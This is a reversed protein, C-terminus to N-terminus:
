FLAIRLASLYMVSSVTTSRIALAVMKLIIMIIHKNQDTKLTFHYLKVYDSPTM